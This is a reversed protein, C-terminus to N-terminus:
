PGIPNFTLNYTSVFTVIIEVKTKNVMPRQNIVKNSLKFFLQFGMNLHTMMLSLAFFNLWGDGLIMFTQLVGVM